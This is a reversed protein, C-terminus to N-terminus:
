AAAEADEEASPDDDEDDLELEEVNGDDDEGQTDPLEEDNDRTENEEAGPDGAETGTDV